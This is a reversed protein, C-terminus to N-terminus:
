ELYPPLADRDCARRKKWKSRCCYNRRGIASADSRHKPGSRERSGGAVNHASYDFHVSSLYFNDFDLNKLQITKSFCQTIEDPPFDICGLHLLFCSVVSFRFLYEGNKAEAAVCFHVFNPRRNPLHHVNVGSLLPRYDEDIAIFTQHSHNKIFIQHYQVPKLIEQCRSFVDVFLVGVVLLRGFPEKRTQALLLFCCVGRMNSHFIGWVTETRRSARGASPVDRSGAAAGGGGAPGASCPSM